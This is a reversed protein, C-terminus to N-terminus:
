ARDVGSLPAHHYPLNDGNLLLGSPHVGYSRKVKLKSLARLGVYDPESVERVQEITDIGKGFRPVFKDNGLKDRLYSNYSVLVNGKDDAERAGLAAFTIIQQAGFQEDVFRVVDPRAIHEVDLDIDPPKKRDLSLFREFTLKFELPDISTIGM